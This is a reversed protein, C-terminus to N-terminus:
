QKDSYIFIIVMGGVVRHASEVVIRHANFSDEHSSFLLRRSVVVDNAIGHPHSECISWLTGVRWWGAGAADCWGCRM